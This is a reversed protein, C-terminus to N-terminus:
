TRVLERLARGVREVEYDLLWPGCPLALFRARYADVGPLPASANVVYPTLGDHEDNRAHIQSTAIECAALHKRAEDLAIDADVLVPYVWWVAGVSTAYSPEVCGDYHEIIRRRRQLRETASQLNEIGITARVDDLHRKAGLHVDLALRDEPAMESSTMLGFYALRRAREILTPGM